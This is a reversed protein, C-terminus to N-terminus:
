RETKELHGLVAVVGSNKTTNVQDAGIIATNDVIQQLQGPENGSGKLQGAGIEKGETLKQLGQGKSTQHGAEAFNQGAGTGKCLGASGRDFM